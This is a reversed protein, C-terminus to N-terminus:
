WKRKSTNRLKCFKWRKFKPSVMKSCHKVAENCKNLARHFHVFDDVQFKSIYLFRCNNCMQISPIKYRCWDNFIFWILYHIMQIIFYCEIEIRRVFQITQRLIRKTNWKVGSWIVNLALSKTFSNITDIWHTDDHYIIVSLEYITHEDDFMQEKWEDNQITQLINQESWKGNMEIKLIIWSNWISNIAILFGVCWVFVFNVCVIAEYLLAVTNVIHIWNISLPLKWVHIWSTSTFIFELKQATNFLWLRSISVFLLM